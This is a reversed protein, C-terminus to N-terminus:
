LLNISVKVETDSTFSGLVYMMKQMAIALTEKLKLSICQWSSGNVSSFQYCSVVLLLVMVHGIDQCNIFNCHPSCTDIFGPYLLLHAIVIWLLAKTKANSELNVM